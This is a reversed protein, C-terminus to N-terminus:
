LPTIDFVASICTDMDVEGEKHRRGMMKNYLGVRGVGDGRRCEVLGRGKYKLLANAEKCNLKYVRFSGFNRVAASPSIRDPMSHGTWARDRTDFVMSASVPNPNDHLVLLELQEQSTEYTCSVTQSPPVAVYTPRPVEFVPNGGKVLLKVCVCESSKNTFEWYGRIPPHGPLGGGFMAGRTLELSLSPQEDSESLGLQDALHTAIKDLNSPKDGKKAAAAPAAVPLSTGGKLLAAKQRAEALTNPRKEKKKAAAELVAQVREKIADGPTEGRLCGMCIRVQSEMTGTKRAAWKTISSVSNDVSPACDACFVSACFRCHHKTRVPSLFVAKCGRCNSCNENEEWLPGYFQSDTELLTGAHENLKSLASTTVAAATSRVTSGFGKLGDAIKALTGAGSVGGGKVDASSKM